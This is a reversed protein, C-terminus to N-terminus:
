PPNPRWPGHLLRGEHEMYVTFALGFHCLRTYLPQKGDANKEKFFLKDVFRLSDQALNAQSPGGGGGGGGSQLRRQKPIFPRM